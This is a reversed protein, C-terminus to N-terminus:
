KEEKIIEDLNKDMQKIAEFFLKGCRKRWVAFFAKQSIM